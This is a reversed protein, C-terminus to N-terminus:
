KFQALQLPTPKKSKKRDNPEIRADSLESVLNHKLPEKQNGDGYGGQDKGSSKDLKTSGTESLSTRATTGSFASFGGPSKSLTKTQENLEGNRTAQEGESEGDNQPDAELVTSLDLM